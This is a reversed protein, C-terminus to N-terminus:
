MKFELPKKTINKRKILFYYLVAAIINLFIILVIWLTRDEFDRKICDILMWLWFIFLVLFIPGFILLMKKMFKMIYDFSTKETFNTDTIFWQGNSSKEFTFYNSLGSINWGVGSAAFRGNIKVTNENLFEMNKNLPNYDFQYGVGGRIRNQIEIQLNSNNPSVLLGIQQIDGKNVSQIFTDLNNLIQQKDVESITVEAFVTTGLLFLGIIFFIFKKM